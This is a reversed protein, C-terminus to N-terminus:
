SRRWMVGTRSSEGLQATVNVNRRGPCAIVRLLSASPKSAIGGGDVSVRYGSPYHDHGLFIQTQRAKSARKECTHRRM